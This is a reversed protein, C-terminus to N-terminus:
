EPIIRVRCGLLSEIESKTMTKLPKFGKDYAFEIADERDINRELTIDLVDADPYLHTICRSYCGYSLGAPMYECEDRTLYMLDAWNGSRDQIAMYREVDPGDTVILIDGRRIEDWEFKKNIIINNTETM